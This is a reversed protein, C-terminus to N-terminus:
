IGNEKGRDEYNPWGYHGYLDEVGFQCEPDRTLGELKNEDRLLFMFRRIMEGFLQVLEEVEYEEFLDIWHQRALYDTDLYQTWLGDPKADRRTDFFVKILGQQEVEYGIVVYKVVANEDLNSIQNKLYQKFALYELKEDIV